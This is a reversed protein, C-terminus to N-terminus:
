FVFYFFNVNKGCMNKNHITKSDGGGFKYLRFKNIVIRATLNFTGFHLSFELRITFNVFQHFIYNDLWTLFSFFM